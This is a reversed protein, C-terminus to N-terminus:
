NREKKRYYIKRQRGAQRKRWARRGNRPSFGPLSSGGRSPPSREQARRRYTRGKSRRSLPCLGRSLVRRKGQQVSTWVGARMEQAAPTLSNRTERIRERRTKSARASPPPYGRGKPGPRVKFYPAGMECPVRDSVLLGHSRSM